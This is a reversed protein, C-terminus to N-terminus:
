RLTMQCKQVEYKKEKERCHTLAIGSLFAIILLPFSRELVHGSFKAVLIGIVPGVCLCMAEIEFMIKFRKLISFALYFIAIFYPGILLAFGIYGYSLLQYSYDAETYIYNLTYGLGLFKDNPNNNHKYIDELIMTKLVRYDNNQANQLYHTWFEMHSLNDYHSIIFPSIGYFSCFKYLYSKVFEQESKSLSDANLGMLIQTDNKLEQYFNFLAIEEPDSNSEELEMNLASDAMTAPASQASHSHENEYALKQGMPSFPFLAGLIVSIVILFLISNVPKKAIKTLIWFCVFACLILLAGMNAVKTGLMFMSLGQAFATIYDIMHKQSYAILLTLPYSMFLIAAMQNGSLFWGKTTIDYYSFKYSNQFHFWDFLRYSCYTTEEGYNQLAIGLFNTIVMSFSVSIIFIRFIRYLQEKRIGSYYVSFLFALPVLFTRTIYYTEVLFNPEQLSYIDHNFAYINIGHLVLYVSLALLYPIYKIFKKKDDFTFLTIFVTTGVLFINFFEFVSLGLFQIDRVVMAQFMAIYPQAILLFAILIYNTKRLKEKM